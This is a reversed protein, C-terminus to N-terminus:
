GSAAPPARPRPGPHHRGPEVHHTRAGPQAAAPTPWRRQYFRPVKPADLGTTAFTTESGGPTIKEISNGTFSSAYLNGTSDFALGYPDTVTAFLTGAGSPSYKEISNVSSNAVYLNGASDFALGEPFSLGSTIFPSEVGGPTFKVISGGNGTNSVYLNGASDFALGDPSSLGTTAFTSHSGNPAFEEIINTSDGAVYLNGASDFAMAGPSDAAVTAFSMAAGAPNYKNISLDGWNNVYLNAASDFAVGTPGNLATSTFTSSAGAGTIKEITSNASNAVYLIDARSTAQFGGLLSAGAAITLLFLLPPRSELKMRNKPPLPFIQACMGGTAALTVFPDMGNTWGHNM